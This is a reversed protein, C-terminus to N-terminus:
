RRFKAEDILISLIIAENIDDNLGHPITCFQLM